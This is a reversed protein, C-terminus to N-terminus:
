DYYYDIYLYNTTLYSVLTDGLMDDYTFTINAIDFEYKQLFKEDCDLIGNGDLDQLNPTFGLAVVERDMM